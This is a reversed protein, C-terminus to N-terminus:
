YVLYIGIIGVVISLIIRANSADPRLQAAAEPRVRVILFSLLYVYFPQVAQAIPVAVSVPFQYLATRFWFIGLQTILENFINLGLLAGRVQVALGRMSRLMRPFFILLLLPAATGVMNAFAADLFHEEEAASRFIAAPAALLVSCATGLLFPAFEVKQRLVKDLGCIWASSAIVLGIGAIQVPKLVEGLLLHAFLYNYVPITQMLVVVVIPSTRQLALFYPYYGAIAVAGSVAAAIFEYRTLNWPDAGALLFVPALLVGVASSIFVLLLARDHSPFPALFKDLLNSLAFCLPSFILAIVASM